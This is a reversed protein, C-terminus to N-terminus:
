WPWVQSLWGGVSLAIISGIVWAEVEIVLADAKAKRKEEPTRWDRM